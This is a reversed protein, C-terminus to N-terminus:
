KSKASFHQINANAFRVTLLYSDAKKTIEKYFSQKKKSIHM